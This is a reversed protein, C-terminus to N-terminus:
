CTTLTDENMDTDEQPSPEVSLSQAQTSQRTTRSPIVVQVTAFQRRKRSPDATAPSSNPPSLSPTAGAAIAESEAARSREAQKQMETRLCQTAQNGVKRISILEKKTPKLLKGSVRRPKAPCDVHSARHPGHCNACKEDNTCKDGFPANGHQDSREGCHVCRAMRTCQQINCYGQCGNEHRLITPSKRIEKSFDSTGFLRFTPVPQRYSIIWTIFGEANPGHRSTRCDVPTTGTQACAEGEVLEKTIPVELGNYTRYSSPVRQVAYNLWQEPTRVSMGNVAQMMLVKKDETLLEDRIAKSAPTIAWGTKIASASPVDQLTLGQINGCLAQRVAFPSLNQLRTEAPIAIFIRLDEKPLPRPSHVKFRSTTAAVQTSDRTGQKEKATQPQSAIDAWTPRHNTHNASNTPASFDTGRTRNGTNSSSATLAAIILKQFEQAIKKEAPSNCSNICQDIACAIQSSIKARLTIAQQINRNHKAVADSVNPTKHAGRGSNPCAIPPVQHHLDRQQRESTRLNAQPPSEPTQDRTQETDRGPLIQSPTSAM